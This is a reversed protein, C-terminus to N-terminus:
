GECVLVQICMSIGIACNQVDNHQSACASGFVGPGPCDVYALFSGCMHDRDFILHSHIGLFPANLWWETFDHLTMYFYTLRFLDLSDIFGACSVPVWGKVRRPQHVRHVRHAGHGAMLLRRRCGASDMASQGTIFHLTSRLLHMYLHMFCTGGRM